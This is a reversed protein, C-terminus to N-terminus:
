EGSGGGNGIVTTTETVTNNNTNVDHPATVMAEWSITTINTPKNVSITGTWTQSTGPALDSFSFTENLLLTNDADDGTATLTVDGTAADPGANSVTLTFERGETGAVMRNPVQLGSDPSISVDFSTVSSAACDLPTAYNGPVPWTHMFDIVARADDAAQAFGGISAATYAQTSDLQPVGKLISGRTIDFTPTIPDLVSLYEFWGSTPDSAPIYAPYPLASFNADRDYNFASYDLYCKNVDQVVGQVEERVMICTKPLFATVSDDTLGLIRNLYVVMDVTVKGTKDAVAGLARAAVTLVQQKTPPNDERPLQIPAAETGLYGTLMLQRYIALNQLPSDIEASTVKGDDGVVSTVLRGAADLSTCDATSLNVLVDDMQSELVSTPSRAVSSRGFDVEQTYSEYGAEIACTEPNVPIFCSNTSGARQCENGSNLPVDFKVDPAALPQECEDDTLIPVGDADRYVVILDGLDASQSGGGGNGGGKGNGNGGPAALAGNAFGFVAIGLLFVISTIGSLSFKM